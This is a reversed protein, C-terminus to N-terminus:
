LELSLFPKPRAGSPDGPYARAEQCGEAPSGDWPQVDWPHVAVPQPLGVESARMGGEGRLHVVEGKELRM